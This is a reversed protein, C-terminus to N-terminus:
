RSRTAQQALELRLTAIERRLSDNDAVTQQIHRTAEAIQELSAHIRQTLDVPATSASALERAEAADQAAYWTELQVTEEGTLSEGRAARDHLRLAEEDTM